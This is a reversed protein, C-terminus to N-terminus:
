FVKHTVVGMTEYGLSQYLETIKNRAAYDPESTNGLVVRVAGNGEAWAEFDNILRKGAMGGRYEPLVFLGSDCAMKVDAFLHRQLSGGMAGVVQGDDNEDVLASWYYIGPRQVQEVMRGLMHIPDFPVAAYNSTKHMRGALAVMYELTEIDQPHRVLEM